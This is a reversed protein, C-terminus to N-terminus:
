HITAGCRDLVVDATVMAERPRKSEDAYQSKYDVLVSRYGMLWDWLDYNPIGNPQNSVRCCNPNSDRFERVSKYKEVNVQKYTRSGDANNEIVTRSPNSITELIAAEIYDSHSFIHGKRLCVPSRAFAVWGAICVGIVILVFRGDGRKSTESNM